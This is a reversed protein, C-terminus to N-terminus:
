DNSTKNFGIYGTDFLTNLLDALRLGGKLFQSEIVPTWESIYDYSIKTNEPTREYIDKAILYTEKGWSAPNKDSIIQAEEEQSARDIQNQWETYSWKHAAEPLSSDWISHLNSSRDFFSVRHSNGGRDSARGMHMPQHIDGLFHVLMIVSLRKEEKSSDASSLIAIQKNIAEVIDGDKNIPASEYTKDADINKYHWTKTYAYEPTHSANDLWNSYYVISKGDLLQEVATKTAPTLHCEAIYAVTDHGKQGWGFVNLGTFSTVGLFLLLKKNMPFCNQIISDFFTSIALSFYMLKIRSM